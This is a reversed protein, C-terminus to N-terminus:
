VVSAHYSCSDVFRYRFFDLLSMPPVARRITAPTQFSTSCCESLSYVLVHFTCVFWVFGASTQIFALRRRLFACIIDSAVLTNRAFFISAWAFFFIWHDARHLSFSVHSVQQTCRHLNSFAFIHRDGGGKSPAFMSYFSPYSPRYNM